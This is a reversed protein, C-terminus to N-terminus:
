KNRKASLRLPAGAPVKKRAQVYAYAFATKPPLLYIASMGWTGTSVDPDKMVYSLQVGAPLQVNEVVHTLVGDPLMQIFGNQRRAKLLAPHYRHCHQLEYRQAGVVLHYIHGEHAEHTLDFFLTRQEKRVHPHRSAGELGPALALLAGAAATTGIFERCSRNLRMRLIRKPALTSIRKQKSQPM